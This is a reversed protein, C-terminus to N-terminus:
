WHVPTAPISTTQPGQTAVYEVLDRLEQHSVQLKTGGIEIALYCVDKAPPPPASKM